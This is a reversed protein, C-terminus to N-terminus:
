KVDKWFEKKLFYAFIFLVGLVFLVVIGISKRRAAVPEGVYALFNVLDRVAMDYEVASLSGKSIETFAHKGRDYGRAGQLTWLAHPM